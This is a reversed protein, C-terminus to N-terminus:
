IGQLLVKICFIQPNDNVGTQFPRKVDGTNIPFGVLLPVNGGTGLM